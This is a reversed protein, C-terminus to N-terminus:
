NLYTDGQILSNVIKWGNKDSLPHLGISKYTTSFTVTETHNDVNFKYINVTHDKTSFVDIQTNDFIMIKFLPVTTFYKNSFTTSHEVVSYQQWKHTMREIDTLNKGKLSKESLGPITATIFTVSQQPNNYGPQPVDDDVQIQYPLFRNPIYPTKVKFTVLKELAPIASDGFYTYSVFSKHNKITTPNLSAPNVHLGSSSTNNLTQSPMNLKHRSHVEFGIGAVIVLAAITVVSGHLMHFNRKFRQPAMKSIMQEITDRSEQKKIDPMKINSALSLREFIEREPNMM